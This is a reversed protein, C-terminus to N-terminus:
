AITREQVAWTGAADAQEVLACIAADGAALTTLVSGGGDKVPLTYSGSLNLVYFQPGGLRLTRADPLILDPGSFQPTLAQVRKSGCVLTRDASVDAVDAGGFFAAQSIM